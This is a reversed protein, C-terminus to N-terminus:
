RSGAPCAPGNSSYRLVRGNLALNERITLYREEASTVPGVIVDSEPLGQAARSRVYAEDARLGNEARLEM